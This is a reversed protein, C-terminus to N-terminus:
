GHTIEKPWLAFLQKALSEVEARVYDEDRYVEGHDDRSRHALPGGPEYLMKMAPVIDGNHACDFGLWWVHDGDEAVHCIDKEPDGQCGETYTLGGHVSVQEYPVDDYSKGHLPHGKPVGVYGCLHGTHPNRNILCPFGLYEWSIRDPEHQWPGKPLHTKIHLYQEVAGTEANIVKDNKKYLNKLSVEEDSWM